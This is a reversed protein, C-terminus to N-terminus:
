DFPSQGDVPTSMERSLPQPAGDNGGVGRVTVEALEAAMAAVDITVTPLAVLAPLVDPVRVNGAVRVRQVPKNGAKFEAVRVESLLTVLPLKSSLSELEGRVPVARAEETNAKGKWELLEDVAQPITVLMDKGRNTNWLHAVRIETLKQHQWEDESVVDGQVTPFRSFFHSFSKPLPTGEGTGGERKEEEGNADVGWTSGKVNRISSHLAHLRAGAITMCAMMDESVSGKGNLCRASGLPLEDAMPHGRKDLVRIKSGVKWARSGMLATVVAYFSETLRIHKEPAIEAGGEHRTTASKGHPLVTAGERQAVTDPMTSTVQRLRAESYRSDWQRDVFKRIDKVAWEVRRDTFIYKGNPTEKVFAYLKHILRQRESACQYELDEHVGLYLYGFANTVSFLGQLLRAASDYLAKGEPGAREADTLALALETFRLQLLMVFCIPYEKARELMYNMLQQATPETDSNPNAKIYFITASVYHAHLLEPHEVLASNPDSPFLVWNQRGITDRDMLSFFFRLHTKEFLRGIMNLSKLVLHFGGNNNHLTSNYASGADSEWWVDEAAAAAAGGRAGPAGAGGDAAAAAEVAAREDVVKELIRQAVNAPAGDCGSWGGDAMVPVSEPMVPDDANTPLEEPVPGGTQEAALKDLAFQKHAALAAAARELTLRATREIYKILARVSSSANLDAKVINDVREDDYLSGRKMAEVEAASADVELEAFVDHSGLKEMGDFSALSAQLM